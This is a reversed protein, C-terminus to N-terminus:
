RDDPRGGIHDIADELVEDTVPEEFIWYRTVIAGDEDEEITTLYKVTAM